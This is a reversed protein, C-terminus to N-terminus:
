SNPWVTLSIVSDWGMAGQLQCSCYTGTGTGICLPTPMRASPNSAASRLLGCNDLQWVGSCPCLSRVHQKVGGVSLNVVIRCSTTCCIQGCRLALAWCRSMGLYQTTAFKQGNSSSPSNTTCYTTSNNHVQGNTTNYLIDTAPTRTTPELNEHKQTLNLPSSLGWIESGIKGIVSM